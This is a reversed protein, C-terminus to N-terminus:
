SGLIAFRFVFYKLLKLIADDDTVFRNLLGIKYSHCAECPLMFQLHYNVLFSSNYFTKNTYVINEQRLILRSQHQKRCITNKFRLALLCKALDFLIM